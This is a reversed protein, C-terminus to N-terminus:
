IENGTEKKSGLREELLAVLVRTSIPKRIYREFGAQEGKDLDAKMVSASVAWLPINRTEPYERMKQIMAFGDLGPLYIDTLILAPFTSRAIAVGEEATAAELLEIGPLKKRFIHRMLLMSSRDDEVYLVQLPQEPM